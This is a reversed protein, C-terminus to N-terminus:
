NQKKIKMNNETSKFSNHKVQLTISDHDTYCQSHLTLIYKYNYKNTFVHDILSKTTITTRTCYDSHLKNLIAYGNSDIIDM